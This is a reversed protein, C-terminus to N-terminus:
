GEKRSETHPSDVPARPLSWGTVADCSRSAEDIQHSDWWGRPAPCAECHEFVRMAVVWVRRHDFMRARIPPTETCAHALGCPSTTVSLVNCRRM